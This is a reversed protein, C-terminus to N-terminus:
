FRIKVNVIGTTIDFEVSRGLNGGVSEGAIRIGEHRLKERTRTINNAIFDTEVDMFLNAGGIIKAEVDEKRSGLAYMRRLMEDIATEIYRTDTENDKASSSSISLVAHALGGIRHRTDYLAIAMCSGLGSVMLTKPEVTVVWEGMPVEVTM